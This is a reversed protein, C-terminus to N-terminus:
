RPHTTTPIIPTQATSQRSRLAGVVNDAHFQLLLPFVCGTPLLYVSRTDNQGWVTVETSSLFQQIQRWIQKFIIFSVTYTINPGSKTHFRHLLELGLAPWFHLHIHQNTFYVDRAFQATFPEGTQRRGEYLRQWGEDARLRDAIIRCQEPTWNLRSKETLTALPRGM